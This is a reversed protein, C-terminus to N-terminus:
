VVRKTMWKGRLWRWAFLITRLLWDMAMAAWVGLLGLGFGQALIFSAGIRLSWMSILSAWMTYSADGAARLANPLAFSPAWCLPATFCFVLLCGAALETTEASFRFISLLPYHALGIGLSFLALAVWAGGLLKHANRRAAAYDGAGVCQGVVTLMALGFAQNPTTAIQVVSGAIANAAIATTGFSSVLRAVLIKGVQFTSGELGSPLGVRLIRRLMEPMLKVRHLGALTLPGAHPRLLMTILMVAAVARSVLTSIAAGAVGMGFGFILLSNGGINLLNVVFAVLMGVKSNGMSRFLATGANYLAIFPYSLASWWLYTEAHFTVEAGINGYILGLLPRGFALVLGALALSALGIIYVLQRAAASANTNERRGLYQSCVVSGGTALATFATIILVNVSDVLSVGSVAAEGVASVMVTDVIGISVAFLQEVVLPWMLRYLARSTWRAGPSPADM